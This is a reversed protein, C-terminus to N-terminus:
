FLIMINIRSFQRFIKVLFILKRVSGNIVYWHSCDRFFKERIRFSHYM